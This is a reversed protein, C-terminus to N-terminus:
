WAPLCHHLFSLMLIYCTPTGKSTRQCRTTVGVGKMGGEVGREGKVMVVEPAVAPVLSYVYVYVGAFVSRRM